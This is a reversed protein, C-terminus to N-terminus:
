QGPVNTPPATTPAATPPAATTPAATPPPPKAARRVTISVVDGPRLMTAPDPVQAMVQGNLPDGIPGVQTVEGIVFGLSGLQASAADKTLGVVQPVAVPPAGDSVVLNVPADRAASANAPPDTGVVADRVVTPNDSRTILGITFGAKGLLFAAGEIPLGTVAPVVRASPGLSVSLRVTSGGIVVTGPPPDQGFVKGKEAQEDNVRVVKVTLNSQELQHQADQEAVGSLDPLLVQGAGRSVVIRATGGRDLPDGAVPTQKMVTGRGYTPSFGFSVKAHLHNRELEVISRTETLGLIKPMEVAGLNGTLLNLPNLTPSFGLVLVALLALALFGVVPVTGSRGPVRPAFQTNM